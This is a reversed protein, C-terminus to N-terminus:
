TTKKKELFTRLDAPRIELPKDVMVMKRLKQSIPGEELSTKVFIPGM